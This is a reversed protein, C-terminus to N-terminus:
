TSQLSSGSPRRSRRQTLLQRQRHAHVASVTILSCILPMHVASSSCHRQRHAHAIDIATIIRFPPSQATSHPATESSSCPSCQSNHPQLHSAHAGSLQLLAATSPCSSHRNCHHDQLAAVAGNLSSSDRVILM